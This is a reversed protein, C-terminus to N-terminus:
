KYLENYLDMIHEDSVVIPNFEIKKPPETLGVLKFMTFTISKPTTGSKYVVKKERTQM